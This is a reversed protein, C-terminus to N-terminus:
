PPSQRTQNSRASIAKLSTFGWYITIILSKQQGYHQKEIFPFHTM